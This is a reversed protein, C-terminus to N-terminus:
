STYFAFCDIVLVIFSIITLTIGVKGLRYKRHVAIASSAIAPIITSIAAGLMVGPFINNDFDHSIAFPFIYLFVALSIVSFFISAIATESAKTTSEQGKRHTANSKQADRQNDLIVSDSSKRAREHLPLIIWYEIILGIIVVVLPTIVSAIITNM